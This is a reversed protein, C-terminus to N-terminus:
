SDLLLGGLIFNSFLDWFLSKNGKVIMRVKKWTFFSAVAFRQYFKFHQFVQPSFQRPSCANSVTIMSNISSM